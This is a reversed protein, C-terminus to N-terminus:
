RRLPVASTPAWLQTSSCSALMMVEVAVGGFTFLSDRRIVRRVGYPTRTVERPLPYGRVRLSHGDAKGSPFRIRAGDWTMSGPSQANVLTM